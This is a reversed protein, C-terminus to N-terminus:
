WEPTYYVIDLATEKTWFSRRGDKELASFSGYFTEPRQEYFKLSGDKLIRGFYKGTQGGNINQFMDIKIKDEKIVFYGQIGIDKNNILESTLIDDFYAIIVQGGEFFRIFKGSKKIGKPTNWKNYTSDLVYVCDTDIRGKSRETYTSKNYKFVKPNNVRTGGVNTRYFGVCSTFLFISGLFLFKLRNM